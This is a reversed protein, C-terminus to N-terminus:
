VLQNQASTYPLMAFSVSTHLLRLTHHHLVIINCCGHLEDTSGFSVQSSLMLLCCLELRAHVDEVNRLWVVLLQSLILLHSKKTGAVQNSSLMTIVHM